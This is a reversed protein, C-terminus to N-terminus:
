SMEPFGGAVISHSYPGTLLCRADNIGRVHDIDGRGVGVPHVVGEGKGAAAGLGTLDGNTGHDHTIVLEETLAPIAGDTVVIRGRM